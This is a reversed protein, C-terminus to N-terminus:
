PDTMIRILMEDVGALDCAEALPVEIWSSVPDTGRLLQQYFEIGKIRELTREM